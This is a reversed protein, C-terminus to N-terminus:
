GHLTISEGKPSVIESVARRRLTDAHLNLEFPVRLFVLAVNACVADRKVLARRHKPIRERPCERVRVM